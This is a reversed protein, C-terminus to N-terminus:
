GSRAQGNSTRVSLYEAELADILDAVSPVDAIAGVCQGGSWVMKWPKIERPITPRRDGDVPPLGDPDLGNMAISPRLFNGGVGCIADTWLVDAIDADILMQKHGDAVGSERTAIFRTGMCVMDAGLVQAAAIGRGTAVGGALQVVGDFFTRVRAVFAFPNLQGSLGGAGACVLMLGDVGAVVAKEAQEVTTADHIVIAGWDHVQKVVETPNGVNTTVIPLEALRCIKIEEALLDAPKAGSVNINVAFPAWTGGADLAADRERILREVWSSLGDGRWANHTPFCGIVGARCAAAVLAPTSAISMPAAMLPLRLNQLLSSVAVSV